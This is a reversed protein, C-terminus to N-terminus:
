CYICSKLLYIHGVVFNMVLCFVSLQVFMTRWIERYLNNDRHIEGHIIQGNQEVPFFNDLHQITVLTILTRLVFHGCDTLLTNTCM